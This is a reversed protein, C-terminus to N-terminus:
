EADSAFVRHKSPSSWNIVREQLEFCIKMPPVAEQGRRQLKLTFTLNAMSALAGPHEEGLVRQTMGMVQVELVEAEKYRGDSYRTMACNRVLGLRKGEDDETPDHSGSGIDELLTEADGWRHSLIAYPPVKKGRFDAFVLKKLQNFHLLRM